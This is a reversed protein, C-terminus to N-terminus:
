KTDSSKKKLMLVAIVAVAILIVATVSVAIIIILTETSIKDKETKDEAQSATETKDTDKTDSTDDSATQESKVPGLNCIFEGDLDYVDNTKVDVRGIRINDIQTTCNADQFAQAGINIFIEADNLTQNVPYQNLGVSTNWDNENEAEKITKFHATLRSKQPVDRQNIYVQINHGQTGRWDYVTVLLDGEKIREDCFKPSEIGEYIQNEDNTPNIQIFTNDGETVLTVAESPKKANVNSWYMLGMSFDLNPHYGEPIPDHYGVYSKIPPIIGDEYTGFGEVSPYASATLSTFPIVAMVMFCLIITLYRKISKM